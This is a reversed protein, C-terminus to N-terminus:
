QISMSVTYSAPADGRADSRRYVVIHYDDYRPLTGTWARRQGSIDGDNLFVRFYVQADDTQLTVSMKQGRRARLVYEKHRGKRVSASLTTGSNGKQFRIRHSSLSGPLMAHTHAEILVEDAPVVAPPPLPPPAADRKPPPKVAATQQPEATRAPTKAPATKATSPKPSSAAPKASRTTSERASEASTGPVTETDNQSSAAAIEDQPQPTEAAATEETVGPDGQQDVNSRGLEERLQMATYLLDTFAATDVNGGSDSWELARLAFARRMTNPLEVDDMDTLMGDITKESHFFNGKDNFYMRTRIDAIMPPNEDPNVRKKAQGYYHFFSENEFYYRNRETSGDTFQLREDILRMKGAETYLSIDMRSDGLQFTPVNRRDLRTIASQIVTAKKRVDMVQREMPSATEVPVENDEWFRLRDCGSLLLLSAVLLSLQSFARASRM